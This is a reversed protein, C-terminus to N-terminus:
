SCNGVGIERQKRVAADVIEEGIGTCIERRDDFGIGFCLRVAGFHGLGDGHRVLVDGDGHRLAIVQLGAARLRHHHMDINARGIRQAADDIPPAPVNRHQEGRAARGVGFFAFQHTHAAAFDMPRLFHAILAGHHAFEDFPIVFQGIALRQFARHIPREVDGHRLRHPRDIQRQRAFCQGRRDLVEAIGRRRTVRRWRRGERVRIGDLVCGVHQGRRLKGEDDGAGRAAHFGVDGLQGSQGLTEGNRHELALMMVHRHGPVAGHM